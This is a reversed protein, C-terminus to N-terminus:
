ETDASGNEVYTRPPPPPLPALPRHAVERADDLDLGFMRLMHEVAVDLEEDSLQGEVRAAMVALFAGSVLLHLVPENTAHFRGAEIARAADRKGSEGMGEYLREQPLGSQLIFWRCLPDASVERLGYRIGAAMVAAPDEIEAIVRDMRRNLEKTRARAIPVLVEHKSEFHHYFSRRAIDAAEAIDDVTVADIGRELFLREAAELIRRRAEARRRAVRGPGAARGSDGTKELNELSM